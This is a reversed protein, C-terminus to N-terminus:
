KRGGTRWERTVESSLPRGNYEAESVARAYENVGTSQHGNSYLRQGGPAKPDPTIGESEAVTKGGNGWNSGTDETLRDLWKQAKRRREPTEDPDFAIRTCAQIVESQVASM